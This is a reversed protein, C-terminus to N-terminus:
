QLFTGVYALKPFLMHTGYKSVKSISLYTGRVSNKSMVLHAERESAKSISLHTRRISGKSIVLHTGCVNNKSIVTFINEHAKKKLFTHEHFFDSFFLIQYGHFTKEVITNRLTNCSFLSKLTKKLFLGMFCTRRRGKWFFFYKRITYKIAIFIGCFIPMDHIEVMRFIPDM